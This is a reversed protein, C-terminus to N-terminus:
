SPIFPPASLLEYEETSHDIDSANIPFNFVSNSIQDGFLTKCAKDLQLAPSPHPITAVDDAQQSSSSFFMIGHAASNPNSIPIAIGLGGILGSQPFIGSLGSEPGELLTSM